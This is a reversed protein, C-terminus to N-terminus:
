LVATVTSPVVGCGRNLAHIQMGHNGMCATTERSCDLISPQEATALARRYIRTYFRKKKERTIKYFSTTLIYIGKRGGSPKSCGKKLTIKNQKQLRNYTILHPSKSVSKKYTKPSIFTNKRPRDLEARHSSSHSMEFFFIWFTNGNRFFIRYFNSYLCINVDPTLMPVYIFLPFLLWRCYCTRTARLIAFVHITKNGPGREM